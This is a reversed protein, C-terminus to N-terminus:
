VSQGIGVGWVRSMALSFLIPSVPVPSSAISALSAYSIQVYLFHPLVPTSLVDYRLIEGFEKLRISQYHIFCAHYIVSINV